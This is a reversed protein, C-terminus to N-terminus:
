GRVWGGAPPGLVRCRTGQVGMGRVGCRAGRVECGRVGCGAGECGAGRVGMGRVGCGAGEPAGENRRVSYDRFSLNKRRRAARTGEKDFTKKDKKFFDVFDDVMTNDRYDPCDLEAALEPSLEPFPSILQGTLVRNLQLQKLTLAALPLALASGSGNSGNNFHVAPYSAGVRTVIVLSPNFAAFWADAYDQSTGTKGALPLTVGYVSRVSAGTGESVAKQLIASILRSTRESIVREEASVPEKEWIIKGDPTRVSEIRYPRIKIGGNAFASYAIATEEITAEATGMALSPENKLPFTFGLMRWLSDLRTFGIKLFLNLTPINMSHVLAGSFSFKGGYTNDFNGPSYEEYGKIQVSDNDLYNCPSIGDELATAYLIPKFTSALQRRALIQDYPHTKFDIGGVWARVAGTVPDVALLGAHLLTQESASGYQEDLRKQMVSLHDKFSKVGYGQLTLNLTTGIVLGDVEINWEKGTESAINQLIQKADNKVQYLFYDAPGRSEINSYDQKLPLRSLSDTEAQKLYGYKEMQSLVVNRRKLANEPYLRPNYFNNAKLIGILVASEEIKLAEVKKNFYRGAASEIGYVNEGFSVTNLYLTLIEQKTFVKELRRALIAERTKNIIIAFPGTNTRGFMNKALQQTITSGGGSSRKSFLITKFFVRLLSRSDIGKHEFFRVDETAILANILQPPLQGYAINTRNESFIKGILEGEQSLVVSATANKFNLLEKKGPLRGFAGSYAAGMFILPVALALIIIAVIIKLPRKM